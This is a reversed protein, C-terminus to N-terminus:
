DAVSEPVLGDDSARDPLYSLVRGALLLGPDRDAESSLILPSAMFTRDLTRHERGAQGKRPLAPGPLPHRSAGHISILRKGGRRHRRHEELRIELRTTEIERGFYPARFSRCANGQSPM